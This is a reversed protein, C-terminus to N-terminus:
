GWTKGGLSLCNKGWANKERTKAGMRQMHEVNSQQRLAMLALWAMLWSQQRQRRRPTNYVLDIHLVPGDKSYTGEFANDKSNVRYLRFNSNGQQRRTNDRWKSYSTTWIHLLCISESNEPGRSYFAHRLKDLRPKKNPMTLPFIVLWTLRM